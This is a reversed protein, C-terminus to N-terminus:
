VGAGTERCERGLSESVCASARLRRHLSRCRVSQYAPARWTTLARPRRSRISALSLTQISCRDGSGDAPRQADAHQCAPAPARCMGCPVCARAGACTHMLRRSPGARSALTRLAPPPRRLPRRVACRVVCRVVSRVVSSGPRGRPKGPGWLYNHLTEGQSIWIWAWFAAGSSWFAARSGEPGILKM